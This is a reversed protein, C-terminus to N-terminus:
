LFEKIAQFFSQNDRIFEAGRRIFWTSDLETIAKRGSQHLAMGHQTFAVSIDGTILAMNGPVSSRQTRRVTIIFGYIEAERKDNQGPTAIIRIPVQATQLGQQLDQLLLEREGEDLFDGSFEVVAYVPTFALRDLRLEPAINEASWQDFIRTTEIHIVKIYMRYLNGLRDISGTIVLEAGLQKGISLVTEDSVAGSYQYQLEEEITKMQGAKREVVSLRGDRVLKSSLM